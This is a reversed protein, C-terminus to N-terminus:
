DRPQRQPGTVSIDYLAVQDADAGYRLLLRHEDASLQVTIVAGRGLFGDVTSYWQLADDRFTEGSELDTGHGHLDVPQGAPVPGTPSVVTIFPRVGKAQVRFPASTVTTTRLGSSAVVRLQCAEGGPLSDFDITASPVISPLTVPRWTLGDTTYLVLFSLREDEVREIERRPAPHWDIRTIGQAANEPPRWRLTIRPPAAPLRLSTLVRGQRLFQLRRTGLPVDVPLSFIWTEHGGTPTHEGPHLCVPEMPLVLRRLLTGATDLFDLKLTHEAGEISTHLTDAEPAPFAPALVVRDDDTVSGVLMIREAM